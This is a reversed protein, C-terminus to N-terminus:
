EQNGFFQPGVIRISRGDAAHVLRKDKSVEPPRYPTFALKLRESVRTDPDVLPSQKPMPLPIQPSLAKNAKAGTSNADPQQNRIPLDSTTMATMQSQPAQCSCGKVYERRYLFATELGRYPQGGVSEMDEPSQGPNQYVFLQAQTGPCSAQCVGEDRAFNGRTTSFSIPFFYGDCLRVCVTRYTGVSPLDMDSYDRVFGNRNGFLSGFLGQRRTPRIREYGEYQEGCRAQALKQVIAAKQQGTNAQAPTYRSRKKELATLNRQMKKIHKMLAPCTAKPTRRFLFGGRGLCGDRKARRMANDIQSQQKHVAQDFKEFNRSSRSTQSRQLMALQSELDACYRARDRQTRQAQANVPVLILALLLAALLARPTMLINLGVMRPNM